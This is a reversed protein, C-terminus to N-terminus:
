VKWYMLYPAAHFYTHWRVPNVGKKKELVTLIGLTLFSLSDLFTLKLLMSAAVSFGNHAQVKGQLLQSNQNVPQGRGKKNGTWVPVTALWCGVVVVRLKKLWGGM